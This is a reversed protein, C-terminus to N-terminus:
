AERGEKGKLGQHMDGGSVGVTIADVHVFHDILGGYIWLLENVDDPADGFAQDQKNCRRM